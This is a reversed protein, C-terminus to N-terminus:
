WRTCVTWRSRLCLPIGNMAAPVRGSGATDTALAFCVLGAAVAVAPYM